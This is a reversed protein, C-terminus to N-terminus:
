FQVSIQMSVDDGTTRAPRLARLHRAVCRKQEIPQNSQVDVSRVRGRASIRVEAQLAATLGCADRMPIATETLLRTLREKEERDAETKPASLDRVKPASAPVSVVVAPMEQAPSPDQPGSFWGAAAAVAALGAVLLPVGILVALLPGAVGVIAGLWDRRQPPEPADDSEPSPEGQWTRPGDEPTSTVDLTRLTLKPKGAELGNLAVLVQQVTWRRDPHAQMMGELIRQLLAREAANGIEEPVVPPTQAELEDLCTEIDMRDSFAVPAENTVLAYLLAGAAFVDTAPSPTRGEFQEPAAFEPTGIFSGQRTLRDGMSHVKAIGFDAVRVDPIEDRRVRARLLVNEPKLDRHVIARQHATDLALLIQRMIGAAARPPLPGHRELHDGLSGGHEFLTVLYPPHGTRQVFGRCEVINDHALDQLIQAENNLRRLFSGQDRQQYLVKIALKPGHAEGNADMEQALYTLGAGGVALAKLVTYHRDLTDGPHLLTGWGIKPRAAGCSLNACAVPDDVFSSL